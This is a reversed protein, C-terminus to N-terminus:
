RGRTARAPRECCAAAGCSSAMFAAAECVFLPPPTAPLASLSPPAAPCAFNLHGMQACCAGSMFVMCTRRRPRRARPAARAHQARM